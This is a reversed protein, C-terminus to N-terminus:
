GSVGPNRETKQANQVALPPPKKKEKESLEWREEKEEREIKEAVPEEPPKPPRVLRQYYAGHLQKRLAEIKALEEPTKGENPDSPTLGLTKQAPTQNPIPSNQRTKKQDNKVNPSKDTKGYLDRLFQKRQDDTMQTSSAQENTGLDGAPDNTQSNGAVQAKASKALDSVIMKGTKKVTSGGTEIIEEFMGLKKM